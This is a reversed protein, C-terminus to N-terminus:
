FSTAHPRSSIQRTGYAVLKRGLLIEALIATLFYILYVMGTIKAMPHPSAARTRHMMKAELLVV